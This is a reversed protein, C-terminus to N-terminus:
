LFDPASVRVGEPQPLFCGSREKRSSYSYGDSRALLTCHRFGIGQVTGTETTINFSGSTRVAVTGVATGQKVGSPVMARVLDGTQFGKVRKHQKPGTRPFGFRDMRCMQRSGHGRATIRLPAIGQIRLHPPTSAGVCTADVWHGKELGRMVRNYKTRGGSGVEVPLGVKKLREYLVWRTTNVAAADRLPAKLQALLRALRAPDDKLFAELEQNGKRSNCSDCALVLNSVRNSGNRSRAQVHDLQLPVHQADCYACTHHWKLEGAWVVAGSQDNVLAMGTTRAGPDLKLRLPSLTPEAIARKLILTFPFRRYVAAQGQTLLRRAQGPHVPTLAQKNTDLLFVNSM